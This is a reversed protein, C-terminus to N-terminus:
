DINLGKEQFSPLMNQTSDSLHLPSTPLLLSIQLGTHKKHSWQSSLVPLPKVLSTNSKRSRGGWGPRGGTNWVRQILNSFSFMENKNLTTNLLIWAQVRKILCCNNCRTSSPLYPKGQHNKSQIISIHRAWKQSNEITCCTWQAQKIIPSALQYWSTLSLALSKRFLKAAQSQGWRQPLQPLVSLCTLSSSPPLDLPATCSEFALSYTSGVTTPNCHSKFKCIPIQM